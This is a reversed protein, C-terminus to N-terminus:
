HEGPKRQPVAGNKIGQLRELAALRQEQTEIAAVLADILGMNAPGTESFRVMKAATKDSSLWARYDEVKKKLEDLKM